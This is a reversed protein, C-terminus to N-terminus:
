KKRKFTSDNNKEDGIVSYKLKCFNCIGESNINTAGCNKCLIYYFPNCQECDPDYQTQTDM